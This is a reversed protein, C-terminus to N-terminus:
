RKKAEAEIAERTKKFVAKQAERGKANFAEEIWPDAKISGVSKGSAHFRERTGLALIPIHPYRKAGQKGVNIGVRAVLGSTRSIRVRRGISKRASRNPARRKMERSLIKMGESAGKKIVKNQIRTSALRSIRRALKKDGEITVSATM